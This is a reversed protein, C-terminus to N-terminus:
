CFAKGSTLTELDYVTEILEEIAPSFEIGFAESIIPFLKILEEDTLFLDERLRSTSDIEVARHNTESRIFSAILQKNQEFNNM